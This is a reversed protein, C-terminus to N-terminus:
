LMDHYGTPTDLNRQEARCCPAGCAAILKEDPVTAAMAAVKSVCGVSMSRVWMCTNISMRYDAGIMTDVCKQPAQCLCNLALERCCAEEGPVATM